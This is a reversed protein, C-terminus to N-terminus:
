AAKRLLYGEGVMKLIVRGCALDYRERTPKVVFGERVHDALTSKGEAHALLSPSWPGRYFHPVVPLDLENALALFDDHHLYERTAVHLADFLAVKIEDRGAGYKLDQVQGYVEGYLVVGPWSALKAALDYKAAAKWWLNKPDERKVCTRSGVWLRGDMFVWRGNAGHLKETLVVDDGERLVDPWRRLGEIDTYVPIGPDKENEGGMTAPDPPEYKVIGMEAQVNQGVSWAPDAPALMGMSFIGRLRKARIRRHEGLFAWREEAPVISDIPLYAARDGPQFEGTRFIVPYNGRVHTLSLTDANPHKAVEGIEVVEVHFESM